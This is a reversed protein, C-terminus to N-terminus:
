AVKLRAQSFDDRILHEFRGATNDMAAALVANAAAELLREPLLNFPFPLGLEIAAASECEILCGEAHPWFRAVGSFEADLSLGAPGEVARVREAQMTTQGPEDSFRVDLVPRVALGLAEFTRLSVRYLGADIQRVRGQGVLRSLLTENGGFYTAVAEPAAPVTVARSARAAIRM